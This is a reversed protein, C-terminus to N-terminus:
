RKGKTRDGRLTELEFDNQEQIGELSMYLSITINHSPTGENNGENNNEISATEVSKPLPVYVDSCATSSTSTAEQTYDYLAENPNPVEHSGYFVVSGNVCLKVTVGEQPVKLEYRVRGGRQLRGRQVGLEVPISAATFPYICCREICLIKM